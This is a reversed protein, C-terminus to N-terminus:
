GFTRAFIIGLAAGLCLLGLALLVAASIPLRVMRPMRHVPVSLAPELPAGSPDSKLAVAAELPTRESFPGAVDASGGARVGGFESGFVQDVSPLSSRIAPFPPLELPDGEGEEQVIPQREHGETDTNDLRTAQVKEGGGMEAPVRVMPSPLTPHPGPDGSKPLRKPSSALDSPVDVEDDSIDDSLMRPAATRGLTDDEDALSWPSADLGVRRVLRQSGTGNFDSPKEIDGSPVMALLEDEPVGERVEWAYRSSPAPQAQAEIRPSPVPLSRQDLVYAGLRQALAEGAMRGGLAGRLAIARRLIDDGYISAMEKSVVDADITVGAKTILARIEDAFEAATQFRKKPSRSLARGVIPDVIGTLGPVVASPASIVQDRISALVDNPSTGKFLAQGTLAEWLVIGMAFVDSRRDVPRGFAQEPSMYSFKGKVIGAQTEYGRDTAKAIGFDTLKPVGNFGVLVNQPTVDRHVLGMSQGDEDQLEHAHHLADCMQATIHLLVGVSLPRKARASARLLQSLSAGFVYEMALSHVGEVQGFGAIAVVNPHNLRSAIRAENFFMELFDENQALSPLLVKLALLRPKQDPACERALFVNAAGGSALRVLLEYNGLQAREM